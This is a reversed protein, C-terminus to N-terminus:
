QKQLFFKYNADVKKLNKYFFVTSTLSVRKIEMSPLQVMAHNTVLNKQLMKSFSGLSRSYVAYRFGVPKINTVKTFRRVLGMLTLFMVRCRRYLFPNSATYQFLKFTPFNSFFSMQYGANIIKIYFKKNLIEFDLFTILYVGNINPFMNVLNVIKNKKKFRIVKNSRFNKMNNRKILTKDQRSRWFVTKKITLKNNRLKYNTVKLKFLM